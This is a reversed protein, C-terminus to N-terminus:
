QQARAAAKAQVLDLLEGLPFTYDLIHLGLLSPSFVVNTLPVPDTRMDGALPRVRIELYSKGHDDKVCAGAYFDEFLTFPTGFGPDPVVRFLPQNVHNPFYTKAFRGEGGALAAPNTCATDMSANQVNSGNAPPYGEAYSRYAIACGTQERTTCLPINQFSGGVVQGDPVVVSGGILLAVILRARLEPSPDILNQILRTTMHTGQSHGMIVFPRGGNDHALYRRFAAEVDAYALDFFRQNDPASYTGITVQRYLPAFIRCRDNFRAVQSLLPDLMLSLDSFDTHNGAPTALDVTPYVYFCDYPHDQDSAAHPEHTTSLDPNVATADIADTFCANLAMGPRCLWASDDAYPMPCDIPAPAGMGVYKKGSTFKSVGGFSLCYQQEGLALVIQVPDPKQALTPGLRRWHATIRLTGPKVTVSLGGGSFRYGRNRGKRGLYSWGREELPFTDDFVDGVFSVLRLSGGHMV